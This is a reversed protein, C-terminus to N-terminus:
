TTYITTHLLYYMYHRGASPHKIRIYSNYLYMERERETYTYM